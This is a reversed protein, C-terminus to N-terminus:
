SKGKEEEGGNGYSKLLDLNKYPYLLLFLSLTLFLVHIYNSFHSHM